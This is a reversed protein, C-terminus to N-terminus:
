MLRSCTLVRDVPAKVLVGDELLLNFYGNEDMPRVVFAITLATIVHRKCTSGQIMRGRSPLSSWEEWYANELFLRAQGLEVSDYPKVVFSM